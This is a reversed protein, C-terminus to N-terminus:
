QVSYNKSVLQHCFELFSQRDKFEQESYGKEYHFSLVQEKSNVWCKNQPISLVQEM